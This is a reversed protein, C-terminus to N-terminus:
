WPCCCVPWLFAFHPQHQILQATLTCSAQLRDRLAKEHYVRHRLRPYPFRLEFLSPFLLASIDASAILLRSLIRVPPMDILHETTAALTYLISQGLRSCPAQSPKGGCDPIQSADLLPLGGAVWDFNVDALDGLDDEPSITLLYLRRQQRGLQSSM